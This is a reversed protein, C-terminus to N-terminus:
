PTLITTARDSTLISPVLGNVGAQVAADSLDIHGAAACTILLLLTSPSGALMALEPATFRNLFATASVIPSKDEAPADVWAPAGDVAGLVKGAPQGTLFSAWDEDSIAVVDDPWTGASDYRSRMATAYFAARSPSFVYSM